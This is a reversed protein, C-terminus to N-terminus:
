NSEPQLWGAVKVALRSVGNEVPKRQLVYFDNARISANANSISLGHINIKVCIPDSLFVGKDGNRWDCPLFNSLSINNPTSHTKSIELRKFQVLIIM